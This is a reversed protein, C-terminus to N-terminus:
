KTKKELLLSCVLELVTEHARLHTYSVPKLDIGKLGNSSIRANSPCRLYIHQGGSPTDVRPADELEPYLAELKWLAPFGNPKNKHVDVDIVLLCSAKCAVAVSQANSWDM